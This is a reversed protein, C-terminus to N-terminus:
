KYLYSHVVILKMFLPDCKRKTERKVLSPKNKDRRGGEEESGCRRKEGALPRETSTTRRGANDRQEAHCKTFEKHEWCIVFFV